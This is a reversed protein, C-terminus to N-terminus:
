CLTGPQDFLRLCTAGDQTLTVGAIDALRRLAEPFQLKEIEMLFKFIDGGAGCAFCHYFGKEGSVTMSPSKDDHFPCLAVANSGSQRVQVYRSVFEILDIRNRIEDIEDRTAM